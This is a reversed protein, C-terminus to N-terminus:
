GGPTDSSKVDRAFLCVDATTQAFASRAMAVFEQETTLPFAAVLRAATVRLESNCLSVIAGSYRLRLQQRREENHLDEIQRGDTSMTM